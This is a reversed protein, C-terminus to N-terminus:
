ELEDEWVPVWDGAGRLIEIRRCSSGSRSMSREEHAVFGVRGAPHHDFYTRVFAKMLEAEHHNRHSSTPDFVIERRALLADFVLAFGNWDSCIRARETDPGDLGSSPGIGRSAWHPSSIQHWLSDHTPM